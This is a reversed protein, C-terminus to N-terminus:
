AKEMIRRSTVVYGNPYEFTLRGDSSTFTRFDPQNIYSDIGNVVGQVFLSLGVAISAAVVVLVSMSLINLRFHHTKNM